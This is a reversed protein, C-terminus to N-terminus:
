IQDRTTPVLGVVLSDTPMSKSRDSSVGILLPKESWYASKFKIKKKFVKLFYYFVHIFLPTTNSSMWVDSVKFKDVMEYWRVRVENSYVMTWIDEDLESMSIVLSLTISNYCWVMIFSAVFAQRCFKWSSSAFSVVNISYGGPDHLWGCPYLWTPRDPHNWSGQGVLLIQM